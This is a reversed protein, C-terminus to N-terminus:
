YIMRFKRIMQEDELWGELICKEVWTQISMKQTKRIKERHDRCSELIETRIRNLVGRDGKRRDLFQDMYEEGGIMYNAVARNKTYDVWNWYYERPDGHHYLTGFPYVNVTKGQTALVFNLFNEGGGYIGLHEPWGGGLGEMIFSRHMMVGCASMCPVRFPGDTKRLPTFKYHVTGDDEIFLKYILRRSELIKYTLPLAITGNLDQWRKEYYFFMRSISDRSPVVHADVFYFFEGTAVRLGVNKANWHSLKKNYRVYKLWPSCARQSGEIVEGGRDPYQKSEVDELEEGDRRVKVTKKQNHLETCYNDVAIVEFDVRGILEEAIARISFIVQPYENCFPIIVSLKVM